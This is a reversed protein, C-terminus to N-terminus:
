VAARLHSTSDEQFRNDHQHRGRVEFGTSPTAVRGRRTRNGDAEALCLKSEAVELHGLGEPYVGSGCNWIEELRKAGSRHPSFVHAAAVSATQRM